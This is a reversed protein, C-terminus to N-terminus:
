SRPARHGDNDNTRNDYGSHNQDGTDAKDSMVALAHRHMAKDRSPYHRWLEIILSGLLCMGIFVLGAAASPQWSM